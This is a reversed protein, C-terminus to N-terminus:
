PSPSTGHHVKRKTLQTLEAFIAHIWLPVVSITYLITLWEANEPHTTTCRASFYLIFQAFFSIGFKSGVSDHWDHTESNLLKPHPIRLKSCAIYICQQKTGLSLIKSISKAEWGSLMGNWHLTVDTGRQASVISREISLVFCKIGLCYM